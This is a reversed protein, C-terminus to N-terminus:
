DEDALKRPPAGEDYKSLRDLIEDAPGKDSHISFRVVSGGKEKKMDEILVRCNVREELESKFNELFKEDQKGTFRVTIFNKEMGVIRASRHNRVLDEIASKM